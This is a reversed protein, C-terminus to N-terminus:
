WKKGAQREVEARQEPTMDAWRLVKGPKVHSGGRLSEPKKTPNAQEYGRPNKRANNWDRPTSM